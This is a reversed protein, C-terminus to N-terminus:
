PLWLLKRLEREGGHSTGAGRIKKVLFDLGEMVQTTRPFGDPDPTGLRVVVLSVRLLGRGPVQRRDNGKWERVTSGLWRREM